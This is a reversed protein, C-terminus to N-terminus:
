PRKRETTADKVAKAASEYADIIMQMEGIIVNSSVWMQGMEVFDLPAGGVARGDPLYTKYFDMRTQLYTKLEKFEATRSFKATKKLEEFSADDEPAMQPIDIEMGSDGLLGNQPGAM